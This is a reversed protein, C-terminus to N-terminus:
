LFYGDFSLPPPTITHQVNRTDKLWEAFMKSNDVPASNRLEEGTLPGTISSDSTAASDRDSLTEDEV